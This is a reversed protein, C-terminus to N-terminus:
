AAVRAAPRQRQRLVSWRVVFPRDGLEGTERRTQLPLLSLSKRLVFFCTLVTLMAAVRIHLRCTRGNPCVLVICDARAAM